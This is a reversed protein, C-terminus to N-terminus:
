GKRSAKGQHERELLTHVLSVTSHLLRELRTVREELKALDSQAPQLQQGIPVPVSAAVPRAAAVAAM